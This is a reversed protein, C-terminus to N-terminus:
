ARSLDEPKVPKNITSEEPSARGRFLFLWGLQKQFAPCIAATSGYRRNIGRIYAPRFRLTM